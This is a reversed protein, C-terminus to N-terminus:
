YAQQNGQPQCCYDLDAGFPRRRQSKLNKPLGAGKSVAKHKQHCPHGCIIRLYSNAHYDCHLFFSGFPTLATHIGIIMKEMFTLYEELDNWKDSYAYNNSRDHNYSRNTFFPPDAYCLDISIPEITKLVEVADGIILDIIKCIYAYENNSM